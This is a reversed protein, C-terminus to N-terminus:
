GPFRAHGDCAPEEYAESGVDFATQPGDFLDRFVSSHLALVGKHAKYLTHQPTPSTPPTFVTRLLINGDPLWLDTSKVIVPPADGGEARPRKYPRDI